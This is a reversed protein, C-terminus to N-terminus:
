LKAQPIESQSISQLVKARVLLDYHGARAFLVTVSNKINKEGDAGYESVKV